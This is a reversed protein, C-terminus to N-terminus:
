LGPNGSDPYDAQDDGVTDVFTLQVTFDPYASDYLYYNGDDGIDIYLNDVFIKWGNPIAGM